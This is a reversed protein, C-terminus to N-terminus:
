QCEFFGCTQVTFYGLRGNVNSNQYYFTGSFNGNTDIGGAMTVSGKRDRFTLQIDNSSNITQGVDAQMWFLMIRKDYWSIIDFEILSGAAVTLAQSADSTSFLAGGEFHVKGRFLAGGAGGGKSCKVMRQQGSGIIPNMSFAKLHENFLHTEHHLVTGQAQQRCKLVGTTQSQLLNHMQQQQPNIQQHHGPQLGSTDRNNPLPNKNQKGTGGGVFLGECAFLFAGLLSLFVLSKM